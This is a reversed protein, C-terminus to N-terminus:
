KKSTHEVHLTYNDLAVKADKHTKFRGIHINKGDRYISVLWPKNKRSADYYCNSSKNNGVRKSIPIKYNDPDKTYERQTAIAEQETKFCGIVRTKGNVCVLVSWSTIRGDKKSINKQISGLLGNKRMRIQRQKHVMLLRSIDSVKESKGGGERINYGYPEITNYDKIFKREMDGLIDSDGEWITEVIFNNWGYNDIANTLCRCKYRRPDKPIYRHQKIRKHLDQITKGIYSMGTPHCTIKYIIGRM